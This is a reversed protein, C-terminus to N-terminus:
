IHFDYWKQKCHPCQIEFPKGTKAHELDPIDNGHLNFFCLIKHITKNDLLILTPRFLLFLFGGVLGLMFAYMEINSM